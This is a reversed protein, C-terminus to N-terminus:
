SRDGDDIPDYILKCGGQADGGLMLCTISEPVPATDELFYCGHSESVSDVAVLEDIGGERM